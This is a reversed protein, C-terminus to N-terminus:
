PPHSPTVFSPTASRPRTLTRGVTKQHPDRSRQAPLSHRSRSNSSCKQDGFFFPLSTATGRLGFFSSDHSGKRSNGDFLGFFLHWTVKKRVCKPGRFFPSMASIKKLRFYYNNLFYGLPFYRMQNARPSNPGLAGSGCDVEAGLLIRSWHSIYNRRPGFIQSVKEGDQRMGKRCNQGGVYVVTRGLISGRLIKRCLSIELFFLFNTKSPVTCHTTSFGLDHPSDEFAEL